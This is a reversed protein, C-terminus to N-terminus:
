SRKRELTIEMSSIVKNDSDLVEYTGVITNEELTGHFLAIISQRSGDDLNESVIMEVKKGIIKGQFTAFKSFYGDKDSLVDGSISYQDLEFIDFRLKMKTLGDVWKGIIDQSNPTDKTCLLRHENKYRRADESLQKGRPALQVDQAVLSELRRSFEMLKQHISGLNQNFEERSIIIPKPIGSNNQAVAKELVDYDKTSRKFFEPFTGLEDELSLVIPDITYASAIFNLPNGIRDLIDIFILTESCKLQEFSAKKQLESYLTRAKTFDQDADDLRKKAKKVDIEASDMRDGFNIIAMQLAELSNKLNINAQTVARQAAERQARITQEQTHKAANRDVEKKLGAIAKNYAALTSLSFPLTEIQGNSRPLKLVLKKSVLNGLFTEGTNLDLTVGNGAKIGTFAFSKAYLSIPLQPDARNIYFRGDLRGRLENWEIMAIQYPLQSVYYQTSGAQVQSITLSLIATLVICTFVLHRVPMYSPKKISRDIGAFAKGIISVIGM